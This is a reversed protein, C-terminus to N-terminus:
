IDEGPPALPGGPAALSREALWPNLALAAALVARAEDLRGLAMLTLAKGSLAGLHRPSLDLARDLDPLAAAFDHRLFNVFARQNYGEAYDPCYAVLRDFAGLADGFDYIARSAMGQDLLAQAQADPAEAWLTWMASSLDQAEAATEAAQAQAILADLAAAHDPADPCTQALAASTVFAPAVLCLRFLHM